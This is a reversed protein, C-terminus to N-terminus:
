LTGWSASSFGFARICERVSHGEDYYTQVEEWNYRQGCRSDIASRLRRAHYTVTPKSIGLRKAIEAHPIGKSLLYAVAGRTGSGIGAPDESEATMELEALIRSVHYSVTTPALGLKRAIEPQRCGELLLKGISERTTPVFV